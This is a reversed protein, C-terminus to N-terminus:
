QQENSLAPVDETEIKWLKNKDTIHDFFLVGNLHDMEHFFIRALLGDARLKITRGDLSQAEVEVWEPRPVMGRLLPISLCGEEGEVTTPGASVIEPNILVFSKGAEPHIPELDENDPLPIEAVLIRQMVGIQPGALGVGGHARMTELMDHALQDIAPSFQKVAQAQQRLRNDDIYIVKRIAMLLIITLMLISDFFVRWHGLFCTAGPKVLKTCVDLSYCALSQWGVNLQAGYDNAWNQLCINVCDLFLGTRGTVIAAALNAPEADSLGRESIKNLPTGRTFSGRRM